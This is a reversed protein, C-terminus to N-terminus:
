VSLKMGDRQLLRVDSYLPEATLQGATFDLNQNASSLMM